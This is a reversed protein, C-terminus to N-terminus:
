TDTSVLRWIGLWGRIDEGVGGDELGPFTVTWTVQLDDAEEM